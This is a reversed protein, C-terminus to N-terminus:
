GKATRALFNGLVYLRMVTFVSVFSFVVAVAKATLPHYGGLDAVLWVILSTVALGTIGASVFQSVVLAEAPAGRKTLVDSFALRSSILYHTLCGCLFGCVAALAAYPVKGLAARYVLLDVALAAASVSVYCALRFLAYAHEAGVVPTLYRDLVANM